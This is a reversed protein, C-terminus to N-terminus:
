STRCGPPAVNVRIRAAQDPIRDVFEPWMDITVDDTGPWHRARRPSQDQRAGAAVLEADDPASFVLASPAVEYVITSATWRAARGVVPSRTASCGSTPRCATRVRERCARRRAGRQRRGGDRARGPRASPPRRGHGVLANAPQDPRAEGFTASSPFTTLGRPVSAPDALADGARWGAPRRAVRGGRRLGRAHGDGGRDAPRRRDAAPQPRQDAPRCDSRAAAHDRGRPM